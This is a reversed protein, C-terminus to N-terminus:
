PLFPTIIYLNLSTPTPTLYQLLTPITLSPYCFNRTPMHALFILTHLHAQAIPKMMLQCGLLQSPKPLYHKLTQKTPQAILTQPSLISIQLPLNLCIIIMTRCQPQTTVQTELKLVFTM